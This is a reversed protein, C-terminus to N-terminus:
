ENPYLNFRAGKEGLFEVVQKQGLKKAYDKATAGASDKANLDAGAEILLEILALDSFCAALMLPLIGSKRKTQNPNIGKDVCFKVVQKHKFKIAIDLASVGDGDVAYIDAGHAVLLEIMEMSAHKRIAYFLPSIEDYEDLGYEEGILIPKAIDAGSELLSKMKALSDNAIAQTIENM